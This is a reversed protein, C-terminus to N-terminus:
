RAWYNNHDRANGKAVGTQKNVYEAQQTVADRHVFIDKKPLKELRRRDVFTSTTLRDQRPNIKFTRSVYRQYNLNSAKNKERQEQTKAIDSSILGSLSGSGVNTEANAPDNQFDEALVASPYTKIFEDYKTDGVSFIKEENNIVVKYKKNPM